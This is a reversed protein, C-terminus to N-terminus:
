ENKYKKDEWDFKILKRRKLEEILYNSPLTKIIAKEIKKLQESDQKYTQLNMLDIEKTKNEKNM